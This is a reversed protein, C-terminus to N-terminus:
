KECFVQVKLDQVDVEGLKEQATLNLSQRILEGFEGREQLSVQVRDLVALLEEM